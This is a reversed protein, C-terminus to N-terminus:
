GTRRACPSALTINLSVFCHKTIMVRGGHETLEASVLGQISVREIGLPVGEGVPILDTEVQPQKYFSVLSSPSYKLNKEM